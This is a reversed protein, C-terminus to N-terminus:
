GHGGGGAVAAADDDHLHLVQGLGLGQVGLFHLDGANQHVVHHLRLIGFGAPLGLAHVVLGGEGALDAAGDGRQRGHGQVLPLDDGAAAGHLYLGAAHQVQAHADAGAHAINQGLFAADTLDGHATLGAHDAANGAGQGVEAAAVVGLAGQLVVGGEVDDVAAAQVHGAQAQALAVLVAVDVDGLEARAEDARAAEDVDGTGGLLNHEAAREHALLLGAHAVALKDDLLLARHLLEQLVHLLDGEGTRVDLGVLAHQVDRLAADHLQQVALHGDRLDGGADIQFLVHQGM